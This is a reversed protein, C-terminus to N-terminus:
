QKSKYRLGNWRFAELDNHAKDVDVDQDSELRGPKIWAWGKVFITEESSMWHWILLVAATTPLSAAWYIGFSPQIVKPGDWTLLPMAFLTAFFTPPLFIMTMIAITKMSYSDKRAALAIEKSSKADDRTLLNFILDNLIARVICAHRSVNALATLVFGLRKSHKMLEDTSPPSDHLVEHWAGHGTTVEISRIRGLNEFATGEIWRVTQIACMFSCFRADSILDKHHIITDIVSKFIQQPYQSHERPILVAKTTTAHPDYTWLMTYSVTHLYCAYQTGGEKLRPFFGYTSSLIMGLWYPDYGFNDFIELFTRRDIALVGEFDRELSILRM